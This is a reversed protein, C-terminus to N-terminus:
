LDCLDLESNYIEAWGVSVKSEVTDGSPKIGM